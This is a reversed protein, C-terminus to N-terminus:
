TARTPKLLGGAETEWTSTNCSCTIIDLLFYHSKTESYKLIKTRKENGNLTNETDQLYLCSVTDVESM